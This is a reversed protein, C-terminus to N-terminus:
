QWCLWRLDIVARDPDTHHSPRNCATNSHQSPSPLRMHLIGRVPDAAQLASVIDLRRPLHCDAISEFIPLHVGALLHLLRACHCLMHAYAHSLSPCSFRMRLRALRPYAGTAGSVLCQVLIINVILACPVLRGASCDVPFHLTCHTISQSVAHPHRAQLSMGDSRDVSVTTPQVCLGPTCRASPAPAAREARVLM